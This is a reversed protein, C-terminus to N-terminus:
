FVKGDEPMDPISLLYKFSGESAQSVEGVTVPM